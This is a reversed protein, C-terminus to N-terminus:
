RKFRNRLSPPVDLDEEQEAKNISDWMNAKNNATFDSADTTQKAELEKRRIEEEEAEKKKREEEEKAIREAEEKAELEKYYDSDFGTAVVTIM